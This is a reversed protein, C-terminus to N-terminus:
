MHSILSFYDKLKIKWFKSLFFVPGTPLKALELILSKIVIQNSTLKTDEQLQWFISDSTLLLIMEEEASGHM